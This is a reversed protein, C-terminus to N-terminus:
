DELFEVLIGSTRRLRQSMMRALNTLLRIALRPYDDILHGYKKRTLVMLLADTDAVATASRPELDLLSMEGLTKGAVITTIRRRRGSSDEKLIAIRGRVVLGMYEGTEGERFVEEGATVSQLDMHGALLEIEQWDFDRSWRTEDLLEARQKKSLRLGLRVATGLVHSFPDNEPSHPRRPREDQDLRFLNKPDSDSV